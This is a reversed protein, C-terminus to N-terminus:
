PKQKIIRIEPFGSKRNVNEKYFEPYKGILYDVAKQQEEVTRDQVMGGEGKYFTTKLTVDNLRVVKGFKQYYKATREYDEKEDITARLSEDLDNIIGYVTGVMLKLDTSHGEKMFFANQVPYISFIKTGHAKMAAFGRDIIKEFDFTESLRENEKTYIGSVDDDMMIILQDEPFYEQIFNRQNKLKIIGEIIQYEEGLESRYERLQDENAVFIFIRSKPIANRELTALTKESISKSRNYSPIAIVYDSKEIKVKTKKQNELLFLIAETNDSFGNTKIIKQLGKMAKEYDDVSLNFQIKKISNSGTSNEEQDEDQDEPEPEDDYSIYEADEVGWKILDEKSAFEKLKDFDWEGFQLNDKLMMERAKKDDIDVYIVPITKHGLERAAKYRQNGGLIHGTKYDVIVPRVELM